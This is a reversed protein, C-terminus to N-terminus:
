TCEKHFLSPTAVEKVLVMLEDVLPNTSILRFTEESEGNTFGISTALEYMGCTM